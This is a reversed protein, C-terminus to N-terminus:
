NGGLRKAYIQALREVNRNLDYKELVRRRGAAGFRRRM